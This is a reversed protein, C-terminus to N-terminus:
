ICQENKKGGIKFLFRGRACVTRSPPFSGRYWRPKDSLCSAAHRQRPMRRLWVSRRATVHAWPMDCSGGHVEGFPARSERVLRFSESFAFGMAVSGANGAMSAIIGCAGANTLRPASLKEFGRAVISKSKGFRSQKACKRLSQGDSQRSLQAKQAAPAPHRVARTYHGRRHNRYRV